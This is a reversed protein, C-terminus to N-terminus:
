ADPPNPTDDPPFDRAADKIVSLRLHRCVWCQFLAASGPHPAHDDADIPRGCTSCVWRITM